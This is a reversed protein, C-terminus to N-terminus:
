DSISMPIVGVDWRCDNYHYQLQEASTSRTFICIHIAWICPIKYTTGGVGAPMVGTLWGSCTLYRWRVCYVCITLLGLCWWENVMDIWIWWSLGTSYWSGLNLVVLKSQLMRELAGDDACYHAVNLAKGAWNKCGNDDGACYLDIAYNFSRTAIWELEEMPYSQDTQQTTLM